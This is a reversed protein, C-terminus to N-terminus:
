LIQDIGLLGEPLVTNLGYRFIALCLFVASICFIINATISRAGNLYAAFVLLPPITLLYGIPEFLATFLGLGVVMAAVKKLRGTPEAAVEQDDRDKRGAITQIALAFLLFGMLGLITGPYGRPGTFTEFESNFSLDIASSLYLGALIFALLALAAIHEIRRRYM